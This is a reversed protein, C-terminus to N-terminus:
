GSFALAAEAERVLDRVVEGAPKVDKVDGVSEGAWMPAYELDGEFDPVIMGAAYRPWEEEEGWPYRLTGIITGEGPRSGPPPRGAADWEEFTKNKIVRHPAGPWGGDFLDASYFTDEARSRVVRDKYAQHIYAEECAVFRTGLSVGQAGLRLARAIGAGNGIGGSALVPVPAVAKVAEPLVEWISEKAKVHGGAEFGQTIIADVGAAAASKAEEVSGVQIFVKVGYRHAEEVFPAPDGWFFVIFPVGDQIIGVVRARVEARWEESVGPRELSAIIINVGFPRDTLKRVREIRRLTEHAPVGSAGLVGGGGANSVAAALEPGASEAFGVNLIPYDIGLARCLPTQLGAVHPHETLEGWAHM